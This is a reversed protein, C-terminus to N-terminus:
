ASMQDSIWKEIVETIETENQASIGLYPRAPIGRSPAGWQHTAAYVLNTGVEVSGGNVLHTLSDRLDGELELIGRGKPKRKKYAPSLDAWPSGDPATKEVRIRYKTQSIVMAGIADLLPNFDPNALRSIVEQVHRMGEATVTIATGAM